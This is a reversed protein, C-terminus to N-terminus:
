IVSVYCEISSCIFYNFFLDDTMQIPQHLDSSLIIKVAQLSNHLVMKPESIAKLRYKPETCFSLELNEGCWIGNKSALDGSTLQPPGLAMDKGLKKFGCPFSLEFSCTSLKQPSFPCDSGLLTAFTRVM